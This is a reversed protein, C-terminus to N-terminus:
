GHALKRNMLLEVLDVDVPHDIDISRERPMVHLLIRGAHWLSPGFSRRHWAYISANMAYVVPASQRGLVEVAPPCVRGISGDPKREVM